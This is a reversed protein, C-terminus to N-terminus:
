FFKLFDVTSIFVNRFLNGELIIAAMDNDKNCILSVFYRALSDRKINGYNDVANHM